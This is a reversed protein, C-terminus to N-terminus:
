ILWATSGIPYYISLNLCISLHKVLSLSMVTQYRALDLELHFNINQDLKQSLESGM